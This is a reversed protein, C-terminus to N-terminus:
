DIIIEKINKIPAEKNSGDGFYLHVPGDDKLPKGDKAFLFYASTLQEISIIVDDENTKLIAREATEKIEATKIFDKIPMVFSHKLIKEKEFKHISKNVPPKIKTQFYVEQDFMEATKKVQDEEKTQVKNSFAEELIVKRDDFIWVSADLTLPFQVNGKLQIIM